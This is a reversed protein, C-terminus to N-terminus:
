ERKFTSSDFSSVCIPSFTDKHRSCYVRHLGFWYQITRFGPILLCPCVRCGLLYVGDNCSPIHARRSRAPQYMSCRDLAAPEISIRYSLRSDQSSKKDEFTQEGVGLPVTDSPDGWAYSLAVFPPRAPDSLSVTKFYLNSQAGLCLLRIEDGQLSM